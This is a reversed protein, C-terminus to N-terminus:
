FGYETFLQIVQTSQNNNNQQLLRDRYQQLTTIDSQYAAFIQQITYGSVEDKVMAPNFLFDNRNDMFDYFLGKPIWHFPDITLYPDFDELAVLHSSLGLIFNNGYSMDQEGAPSSSMGYRQDALFHGMHYGWTEGLAILPAQVDDGKGYPNYTGLPHKIIEQIEANVFGLYWGSGMKSYQSGHSAEHYTSSTFSM